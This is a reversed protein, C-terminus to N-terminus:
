NGEIERNQQQEVEHDKVEIEAENSDDQEEESDIDIEDYFNKKAFRSIDKKEIRMPEPEIILDPDLVRGGKIIKGQRDRCDSFTENFKADASDIEVTEKTRQIRFIFGNGRKSMGIFTGKESRSSLESNSREKVRVFIQAPCGFVRLKRYDLQEGTRFQLPAMFNLRSSPSRNKLFVAHQVAKAWLGNPLDAYKLMARAKAFITGFSREARGNEWPHEVNSFLQKAGLSRVIWEDFLENLFEEGRDFQWSKLKSNNNRASIM